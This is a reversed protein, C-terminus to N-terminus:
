LLLMFVYVIKKRQILSMVQLCWTCWDAIFTLLFRLKDDSVPGLEGFMHIKGLM